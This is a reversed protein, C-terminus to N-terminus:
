GHLSGGCEVCEDGEDFRNYRECKECWEVKQELEKWPDMTNVM